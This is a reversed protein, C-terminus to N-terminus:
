YYDIERYTVETQPKAGPAAATNTETRKIWNGSSDLVYEYTIRQPLPNGAVRLVREAVPGESPYKYDDTGVIAESATLLFRRVIRNEADFVTKNVQTRVNFEEIQDGPRASIFVSEYLTKEDPEWRFKSLSFYPRAPENSRDFPLNPIRRNLRSNEKRYTYYTEQADLGELQLWQYTRRGQKDFILTRSRRKSGETPRGNKLEVKAVKEDIRKVRGKLGEWNLDNPQASGIGALLLLVFISVISTSRLTM